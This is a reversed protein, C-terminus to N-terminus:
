STNRLRPEGAWSAVARPVSGTASPAALELDLAGFLGELHEPGEIINIHLRPLHRTSICGALIWCYYEPELAVFLALYLPLVM